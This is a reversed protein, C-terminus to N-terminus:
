VIAKPDVDPCLPIVAIIRPAGDVGSFVRTASVLANRKKAQAQKANNRRNLRTQASANTTTSAKPSIRAIRGKAADKLASKTAHKSKYRKNTQKLTPRHHHQTEVM